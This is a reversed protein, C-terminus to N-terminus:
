ELFHRNEGDDLTGSFCTLPRNLSGHPCHASFRCSKHASMQSACEQVCFKSLAAVAFRTLVLGLQFDIHIELKAPVASQVHVDGAGRCASSVESGFQVVRSSIPELSGRCMDAYACSSSGM